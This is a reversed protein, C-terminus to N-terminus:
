QWSGLIAGMVLLSVLYYSVNLYWLKWSKNGWIVDSMTVPVIFGLWMWFASTLGASLTSVGMYDSAFVLSHALVYSMLLSGLAALAYSKGMGKATAAEMDQKTWGMLKIWQKGFLAGFWLSGIVMNSLAGVLVALYNIPVDM